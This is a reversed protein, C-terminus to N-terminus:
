PPQRPTAQLQAEAKSGPCQNEKDSWDSPLPNKIQKSTTNDAQTLDILDEDWDLPQKSAIVEADSDSSDNPNTFIRPPCGKGYRTPIYM